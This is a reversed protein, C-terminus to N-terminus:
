IWFHKFNHIQDSFPITFGVEIDSPDKIVVKLDPGLWFKFYSGYKNLIDLM